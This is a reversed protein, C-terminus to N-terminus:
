LFENLLTYCFTGFNGPTKLEVDPLGTQVIKVTVTTEGPELVKGGILQEKTGRFFTYDLRSENSEKLTQNIFIYVYIHIYVYM